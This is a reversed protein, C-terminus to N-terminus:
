SARRRTAPRTARSPAVKEQRAHEAEAARSSIGQRSSSQNRAQKGGRIASLRKGAPGPQRRRGSTKAGESINELARGSVAEDEHKVAIDGLSVIGVLRNDEVVPLRRIQRGSMIRAAEQLDMDPSATELDESLVDDVTTEAPDKGEAICRVVIDRDTVIGVVEDDELVPIAGVDGDRMMTAIEDLTTDPEATEVEATMIDRVKPM